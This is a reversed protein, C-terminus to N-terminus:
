LVDITLAYTFTASPLAQGARVRAYHKGPKIPTSSGANAVLLFACFDQASGQSTGLVTSGDPAVLDVSSIIASSACDGDGNDGVYLRVQTAGAPVDFSVVDVDGAPSISAYWPSAHANATAVADNPEVETPELQCSASCGDGSAANGDDCQELPEIAGNGCVSAKVVVDLKYPFTPALAIASARLRVYYTGPAAIGAIATPCTDTAGADRSALVTVGDADVIELLGELGGEECSHGDFDRVTARISSPASSVTVAVVDVDGAPAIEGVGVGSGPLTSAQAVSDNPEVETPELACSASCGDGSAANGDDCAEAGDRFGDGCVIPRSNVSLTFTGADAAGHGQVVVFFSEGAASPVAARQFTGPGLFRDVCAIESAADGCTKRVSLAVDVGSEIIAELVGADMATVSFVIAPGPMPSACSSAITTAHGVNDAVASGHDPLLVVAAASCPDGCAAACQPDDCDVLTNDDNDIGDICSKEIRSCLSTDFLCGDTCGLKGVHFGMGVTDCANGFLDAGDCQEGLEAVGNGCVGEVLKTGGSGTTGSTVTLTSGGAGADILPIPPEGCASISFWAAALTALAGGPATHISRPRAAITVRRVPM